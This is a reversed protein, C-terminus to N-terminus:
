DQPHAATFNAVAGQYLQTMAQKAEALSIGRALLASGVNAYLDKAVPSAWGDPGPISELAQAAPNVAPQMVWELTEAGQRLYGPVQVGSIILTDFRGLPPVALGPGVLLRVGAYQKLPDPTAADIVFVVMPVSGLDITM